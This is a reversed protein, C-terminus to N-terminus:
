KASLTSERVRAIDHLSSMRVAYRFAPLGHYLVM